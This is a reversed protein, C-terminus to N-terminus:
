YNIEKGLPTEKLEKTSHKLQFFRDFHGGLIPAFLGGGRRLLNVV